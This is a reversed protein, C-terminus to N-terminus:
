PCLPLSSPVISQIPSTWAVNRNIAKDRGVGVQSLKRQRKMNHFSL